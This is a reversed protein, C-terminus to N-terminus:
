RAMQRASRMFLRLRRNAESEAAQDLDKEALLEEAERAAAGLVALAAMAEDRDQDKKM